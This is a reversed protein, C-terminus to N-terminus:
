APVPVPEVPAEVIPLNILASAVGLAISLTWVPGYGGFLSYSLSGLWAGLFGGVQHSFFTFGYLLSLNRAGFMVSVLGSTPPVTSLWLLGSVAGFAYASYPGIPVALFVATAAARALYIFSLIYRRPMVDGLWGSALSGFMNFLGVLAFAFAGQGPSLGGDTLYIQFHATIFALQFGCTFFGLALLFYSRHRLADGLVRMAPRDDGPRAAPAAVDGGRLFVALPIALLMMGAFVYLAGRWGVSGILGVALPSFAFQGLSGAATGLGLALSRMRPPLVKGFAGLVINFSAGSLALGVLAGAFGFGTPTGAWAMWALGLAYGVSGLALVRPAGYRDAIAGAFPQGVGWMLNQLAIAFGFVDRSWNHDTVIDYQFAGVASRPGFLLLSVFCGVALVVEPAFARPTPKTAAQSM